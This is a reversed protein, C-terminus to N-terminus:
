NLAQKLIKQNNKKKSTNVDKDDRSLRFDCIHCVNEKFVKHCLFRNINKM